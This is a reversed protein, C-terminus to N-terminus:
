GERYIVFGDKPHLDLLLQQDQYKDLYKQAQEESDFRTVKQRKDWVKRWNEPPSKRLDDWTKKM